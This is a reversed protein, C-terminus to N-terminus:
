MESKLNWFKYKGKREIKCERYCVVCLPSYLWFKESVEKLCGMCKRVPEGTLKRNM